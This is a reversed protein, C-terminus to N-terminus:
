HQGRAVELIPKAALWAAAVMGWADKKALKSGAQAFPFIAGIQIQYNSRSHALADYAARLWQEQRKVPTSRGGGSATRLDFELLADVTPVSRQSKYHRQISRFLPHAGDVGKLVPRLNREVEAVVRSFGEEGLAVLERRLDSRMSNPFTIMAEVGVRTLGHTLHPWKTFPEQPSAFTFPIYDWVANGGHGTIASRGTSALNAGLERALPKHARLERMALAQVRKAELYNYPHKADFHYGAFETLTGEKLYGDTPWRSECIEMYEVARGAWESASCHRRLWAYVQSWRANITGTPTGVTPDDVSLTLLRPADFGRRRLTALHRDLQDRTLASSVKSEIALVWAEEANYICADPLGRGGAEEDESPLEGPLSQETVELNKPIAGTVRAIDRLFPVLLSRDADLACVLAHTLQNEPQGYQAFVNRM